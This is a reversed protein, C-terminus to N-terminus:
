QWKVKLTSCTCLLVNNYNRTYYYYYLVSVIAFTSHIMTIEICITIVHRFLTM